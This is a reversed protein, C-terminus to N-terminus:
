KNKEWSGDIVVKGYNIKNSTVNMFIAKDIFDYTKEGFQDFVGVSIYIRGNSFPIKDIIFKVTDIKKSINFKSDISNPGSLNIGDEDYFALGIAYSFNKKNINNKILIAIICKDGTKVINDENKIKPNIIIKEISLEKSGMRMNETKDRVNFQENTDINIRRYAMVAEGPSFIGQPIGNDIFLARNCFKEIYEMSHTVLVVTKKLRKYNRFVELCKQQFNDDGVALVEDLLLIDSDARIAISFALRVQMGSSYNKLKQDMFRNLEAFDVISKYMAEMESRSFGLLAGNLFVNDRGSLEPSFGVGLEIFPILRGNIEVRGIDPSYIGALIKLLTSKGSGNRGIIGFFEGKEVEFSIGKLAKQVEYGKSHKYFNIISGKLSNNKEHPLKFTKHINDVKIAISDKM